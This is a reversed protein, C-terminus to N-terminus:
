QLCSAILSPLHQHVAALAHGAACGKQYPVEHPPQVPRIILDVGLDLCNSSHGVRINSEGALHDLSMDVAVEYSCASVAHQPGLALM